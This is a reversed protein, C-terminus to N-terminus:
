PTACLVSTDRVDISAQVACLICWVYQLPLCPVNLLIHRDYFTTVTKNCPQCAITPFVTLHHCLRVAQCLWQPHRKLCFPSKPSFHNLERIFIHICMFLGWCVHYLWRIKQKNNQTVAQFAAHEVLTIHLEFSAYESINDTWLKTKWADDVAHMNIQM